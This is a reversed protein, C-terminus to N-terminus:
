VSLHKRCTYSSILQKELQLYNKKYILHKCNGIFTVDTVTSNVMDPDPKKLALDIELWHCITGDWSIFMVDLVNDYFQMRSKQVPVLYDPFFFDHHFIM